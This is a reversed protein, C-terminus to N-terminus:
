PNQGTNLFDSMREIVKESTSKKEAEVINNTVAPSYKSRNDSFHLLYRYQSLVKMYDM